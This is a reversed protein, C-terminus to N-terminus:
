VHARGIKGVYMPGLAPVGLALLDKDNLGVKKAGRKVEKRIKKFPNGM